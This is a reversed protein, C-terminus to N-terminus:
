YVPNFEHEYVFGFAKLIYKLTDRTCNFHEASETLTHKEEIVYKRIEEGRSKLLKDRKHERKKFNWKSFDIDCFRKHYIKDVM